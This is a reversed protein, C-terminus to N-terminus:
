SRLQPWISSTGWLKTSLGILFPKTLSRLSYNPDSSNEILSLSAEVPVKIIFKAGQILGANLQFTSESPFKPVM